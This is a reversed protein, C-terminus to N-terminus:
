QKAVRTSPARLSRAVRRERYVKGSNRSSAEVEQGKRKKGRRKEENSSHNPNRPIQSVTGCCDLFGSKNRVVYSLVDINFEMIARLNKLDKGKLGHKSIWLRALRNALPLWRSHTLTGLVLHILDYDIIGTMIMKAVRYSYRQDTSLDNIVHTPMERLPFIPEIVPFNENFEFLHVDDDIIKGLNGPIDFLLVTVCM